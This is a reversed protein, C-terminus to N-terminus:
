SLQSRLLVLERSSTIKSDNIVVVWSKNGAKIPQSVTPQAKSLSRCPQPHWAPRHSLLGMPPTRSTPAHPRPVPLSGTESSGAAPSPCPPLPIRGCPSKLPYCSFWNVQLTIFKLAKAREKCSQSLPLFFPSPLTERKKGERKCFGVHGKPLSGDNM